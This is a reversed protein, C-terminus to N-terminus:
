ATPKPPSSRWARMMQLTYYAVLFAQYGAHRITPRVYRRAFLRYNHLRQWADRGRFAMAGGLAPHHELRADPTFWLVGGTRRRVRIAADPESWDGIGGFTEDFGGVAKLAETRFAMNCAELYDVEGEYSCTAESAATTFTGSRTLHGPLTPLDVFCWDYFRKLNRYRFLDRHSRYEQPIVAPGTVGVVDASAFAGLVGALWTSPCVTDDDIFCVM